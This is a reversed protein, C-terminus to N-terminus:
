SSLYGLAQFVFYGVPVAFLLADVRDLLGGHGPIISGMDKIGLSRKIMSEALDGLPSTVFLALALWLSGPLEFQGFYDILSIVFVM